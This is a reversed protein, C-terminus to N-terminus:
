TVANRCSTAKLFPMMTRIIECLRLMADMNASVTIRMAGGPLIFATPGAASTTVASLMDSTYSTPQM